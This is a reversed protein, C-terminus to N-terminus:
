RAGAIYRALGRAYVWAPSSGQSQAFERKLLAAFEAERKAWWGLADWQASSLERGYEYLEMDWRNLEEIRQRAGEPVQSPRSATVNRDALTPLKRWGMAQKMLALAQDAREVLGVALFDALHRKALEMDGRGVQGFPQNMHGSIIRTQLNDLEPSVGSDVFEELNMGTRSVKDHLYNEPSRLIYYYHSAVRQVPHRLVTVYGGFSPLLEHFGWSVHGSVLRLRGQREPSLAKYAALDAHSGDLWAVEEPKLKRALAASFTSGAAKPIHM